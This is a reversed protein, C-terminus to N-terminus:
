IHHPPEWSAPSQASGDGDRLRTLEKCVHEMTPRGRQQARWCTAIIDSCQTVLGRMQEMSPLAPREENLVAERMQDRGMSKWPTTVTIIENFVIGFAFTDVKSTITSKKEWQEPAMYAHTGGRLRNGLSALGFDCLKPLLDKTLLM